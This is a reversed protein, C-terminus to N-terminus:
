AAPGLDPPRLQQRRVLRLAIALLVFSVVWLYYGARLDSRQEGAWILWQADLLAAAFLAWEFSRTLRHPWRLAVVLATLFLINSAATAAELAEQLKNHAVTAPHLLPYLAGWTATWGRVVGSVEGDGRIVLSPLFWAAVYALTAAALTRKGAM